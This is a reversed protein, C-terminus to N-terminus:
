RIAVDSATWGGPRRNHRDTADTPARRTNNDSTPGCRNRAGVETRTIRGSSDAIGTYALRRVGGASVVPAM